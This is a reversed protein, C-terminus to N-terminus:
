NESLVQGSAADLVLRASNGASTNALVTYVLRGGSSCVQASGLESYGRSRVASQIQALSIIQGDAIAQRTQASSLCSQAQGITPGLLMAFTLVMLTALVFCQMMRVLFTIHNMSMPTSM